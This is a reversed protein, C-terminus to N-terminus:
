ATTLTLSVSGMTTQVLLTKYFKLQKMRVDLQLDRHQRNPFLTKSFWSRPSEYLLFHPAQDKSYVYGSKAKVEEVTLQACTAEQSGTYLM